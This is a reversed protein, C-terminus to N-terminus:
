WVSWGGDVAINQGTIYSSASSLLFAVVSAVEAPQGIRGLPTKGSLRGIFAPDNQQTLPNPFPGPSICNFRINQRGYHVALYRTMQIIGAKGVGYELPNKVMPPEYIQPDPSIMGYMSSFLVVSGAVHKHIMAAATERCLMFTSTLNTHNARDFEDPSLTELAKATSQLTLNVMGYPVGNLRMQEGVFAPIGDTQEVNFTLAKVDKQLAGASVFQMARDELDICLVSAGAQTLVRVVAQGLYGAGGFVWITKERLDIVPLSTDSTTSAKM